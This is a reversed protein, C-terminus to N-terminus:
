GSTPSRPPLVPFSAQYALRPGAEEALPGLVDDLALFAEWLPQRRAGALRGAVLDELDAQRRGKWIKDALSVLLEETSIGPLTWSAHTGAYRARDPHVGRALLLLARGAEEHLSGPESLEEPHLVKGVDHTAAGYLVGHRDAGLEAGLADVLRLAVDHVLRLHAVLRPPAALETLLAGAEAPLPAPEPATRTM